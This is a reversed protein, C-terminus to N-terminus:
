ALSLNGEEDFAWDVPGELIEVPKSLGNLLSESVHLEEVHRTDRIRGLKITSLDPHNCTSVAADIAERDSPLSMPVRVREVFTSALANAHTTMPDIAHVVARTTVDALGVGYANGGSGPSIRLVAIRKIRPREPEPEGAIFLRGIVHTDMGTGSLDKGLYDVVLVDAEEFPLMPCLGRAEELLGPERDLIRDAPIGEIRKLRDVGNELLAVGALVPAERLVVRAMEPLIQAIADVGHKHICAAGERGGLGVALMKVLGSEYQGSCSTHPKIRNVVVIGDAEAAARSCHVPLGKAQGLVLTRPDSAVPAGVTDETIGLAALLQVPGGPTGGGHSGMAPVLFPSAGRRRVWDAILRLVEAIRDIGRSGATLAVKMGPRIRDAVSGDALALGVAGALDTVQEADLHQRIRYMGPLISM